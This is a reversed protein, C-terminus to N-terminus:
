RYILTERFLPEPRGSEDLGAISLSMNGALTLAPML